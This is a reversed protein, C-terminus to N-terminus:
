ACVYEGVKGYLYSSNGIKKKVVYGCNYMCTMVDQPSQGKMELQEPHIEIYVFDVIGYSLSDWGNLVDMEAGEVDIKVLRIHQKNLVRKKVLIRHLTNQRVKVTKMEKIDAWTLREISTTSSYIPNVAIHFDVSGDTAGVAVNILDIKAIGDDAVPRTAIRKALEPNAEVSIVRGSIGVMKAAIFTYYGINAGLDIFVDGKRLINKMLAGLESVDYMDAFMNIESENRFDFKMWGGYAHPAVAERRPLMHRAATVGLRILQRAIVYWIYTLIGM